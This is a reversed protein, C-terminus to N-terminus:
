RQVELRNRETLVFFAVSWSTLGVVAFFESDFVISVVVMAASLIAAKCRLVLLKRIQLNRRLYGVNWSSFMSTLTYVLLAIFIFWKPDFELFLSMAGYSVVSALSALIIMTPLVWTGRLEDLWSIPEVSNSLMVKQVAPGIVALFVLSTQVFRLEVTLNPGLASNLFAFTLPVFGFSIASELARTKLSDPPASRRPKVERETLREGLRRDKIGSVSAACMLVLYLHYVLWSIRPSSPALDLALGLLFFLRVLSNLGIQRLNGSVQLWWRLREAYGYLLILGAVRISGGFSNSLATGSLLGIPIFFILSTDFSLPGYPWAKGGLFRREDVVTVFGNAIGAGFLVAVAFLAASAEGYEALLRLM